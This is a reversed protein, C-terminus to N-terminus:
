GRAYGLLNKTNRYIDLRSLQRPSNITQYFNNVIGGGVSGGTSFSSGGSTLGDRASTVAGATMDRISSLVSKANKSIGVAIGEPIWRGVEDRMLTSPSNIGFAEKIWSDVDGVFDTIKKKFWEVGGSIGEWIGEVVNKGVTKM